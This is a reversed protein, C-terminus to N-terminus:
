AEPEIEYLATGFFVKNFFDRTTEEGLAKKFVDTSVGGRTILDSSYASIVLHQYVRESNDLPEMRDAEELYTVLADCFFADNLADEAAPLRKHLAVPLIPDYWHEGVELEELTAYREQLKALNTLVEQYAADTRMTDSVTDYFEVYSKRNRMIYMFDLTCLPVAKEYPTIMFSVMQMFGMNATMVSLNGLGEVDYQDTHFKMVGYMTIDAYDGADRPTVTYHEGVLALGKDITEHMVKNNRSANVAIVAALLALLLVIVLLIVPLVKKKQKPTANM